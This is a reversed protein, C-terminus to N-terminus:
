PTSAASILMKSLLVQACLHVKKMRLYWQLMGVENVVKASAPCVIQKWQKGVWDYPIVYNHLYSIVQNHMIGYGNNLFNYMLSLVGQDNVSIFAKKPRLANLTFSDNFDPIRIACM